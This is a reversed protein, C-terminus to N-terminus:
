IISHILCLTNNNFEKFIGTSKPHPKKRKSGYDYALLISPNELSQLLSEVYKRSAQNM